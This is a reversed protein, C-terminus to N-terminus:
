PAMTMNLRRGYEDVQEELTVTFGGARYKRARVGMIEDGEVPGAWYRGLRPLWARLEGEVVRFHTPSSLGLTLFCYAPGVTLSFTEDRELTVMNANRANEAFALPKAAAAADAVKGGKLLPLCVKDMIPAFAPAKRAEFPAQAQAPASALLAALATFALGTRRM